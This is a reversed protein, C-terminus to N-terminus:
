FSSEAESIPQFAADLNVPYISREINRLGSLLMERQRDSIDADVMDQRFELYVKHLEMLAILSSQQKEYATGKKGDIITPLRDLM